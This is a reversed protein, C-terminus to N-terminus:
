HRPIAIKGGKRRLRRRRILNCDPQPREGEKGSPYLFALGGKKGRVQYRLSQRRPAGRGRSGGRRRPATQLIYNHGKKEFFFVKEEGDCAAKRRRESGHGLNANYSRILRETFTYGKRSLSGGGLRITGRLAPGGKKWVPPSSIGKEESRSTSEKEVLGSSIITASGKGRTPIDGRELWLRIRWFPRGKRPPYAGKIEKEVSLQVEKKAASSRVV